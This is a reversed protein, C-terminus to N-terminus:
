DQWAQALRKVGECIQKENLGGYGLIVSSKPPNGNIYYSSVPYIKVKRMKARLIMENESLKGDYKLLIHHGAKEGSVFAKKGLIKLQSILFERKTKYIKRTKNIYSEFYGGDMFETLGRQELPSVGCSIFSFKKEYHTMPEPPLVIYSIRLSPAVCRTFTGIYIVRGNKDISALSPLPKSNYRFESDYDDEIIYKGHEYAWNLLEIRKAIPMSFGLPFQHSPTVYICSVNRKELQSIDVGNKDTDITIVRNSSSKFIKYANGYVPNELGIIHTKPFIGGLMQLAHDTGPCIIINEPSCEFGRASKLYRAISERLPLYGKPPVTKLFKFNECSNKLLRRWTNFPFSGSDTHSPSFDIDFKSQIDASNKVSVENQKKPLSIIEGVKSVFFGKKPLSYIFGECALQSYATDVTNVSVCLNEALRRKSPLKEDSKLVGKIIDEKIENYIQRYIPEKSNESILM